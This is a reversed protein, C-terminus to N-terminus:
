TTLLTFSAVSPVDAENILFCMYYGPPAINPNPPATVSLTTPSPHTHEVEILRQEMNVQHTVSGPRMLVVRHVEAISSYGVTFAMDYAIQPPMDTIAPRDTVFVYPPSFLEIRREPYMMIDVQFMGDKGAMAVRGDPLLIATGHYGRPVRIGCMSAWTETAPDYIETTLSLHAALNARGTASGGAAFVKGDPLLVADILVAGSNMPATSRWAPQQDSMDIIEATNTAPTDETLQDPDAGGGGIALIKATYGNAASLPLLVTSGEGPYTRSYPYVALIEPGWVDSGTDYTRTTNRSHVFLQGSPLVFVFPYMDITPFGTFSTSTSWPSPLPIEPTLRQQPDAPSRDYFALTNNIDASAESGAVMSGSIVLVRGDPLATCTPYWRGRPMDPEKSWANGIPDFIHISRTEEEPTHGGAVFLRGDPLFVHGSCFQNGGGSPTTVTADAPDFVRSVGGSMDDTFAFYVVHGTRLVAAHIGVMELSTPPAALGATAPDCPALQAVDTQSWRGTGEDRVFRILSRKPGLAMAELQGAFNQILAAASAAATGFRTPAQWAENNDNERRYHALGGGSLPAVVEFDDQQGSSSQIFGPPGSVGASATPVELRTWAMTASDRSFHVLHDAELAIVELNGKGYNSQILSVGAFSGAAFVEPGAWSADASGRHWHALGQQVVAVVEYGDTGGINSQIFAPGVLVPPDGPLTEFGHWRQGRTQTYRLLQGGARTMMEQSQDALEILAVGEVDSESGFPTEPGAWIGPRGSLTYIDAGGGLRPAVGVYDGFSTQIFFSSSTRAM